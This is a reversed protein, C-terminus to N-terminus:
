AGSAKMRALAKRLREVAVEVTLWELGVLENAANWDAKEDVRRLLNSRHKSDHGIVFRRYKGSPQQGCGCVCEM